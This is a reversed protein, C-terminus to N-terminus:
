EQKNSDGRATTVMYIVTDWANHIGIFLLALAGAAIVFLAPQPLTRVFLAAFGMAAYTSCPLIVHWLWDEMVPKYVTQRRARRSVNACYALGILGCIALTVSAPFVSPWPAAMVASVLLAGALHLVTPTAFASLSEMTPNRRLNSVLAIAVFQLGILSAGASGILVYFNQWSSLLTNM